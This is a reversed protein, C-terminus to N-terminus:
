NVNLLEAIEGLSMFKEAYLTLVDQALTYKKM